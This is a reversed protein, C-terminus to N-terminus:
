LASQQVYEERDKVNKREKVEDNALYLKLGNDLDEKVIVTKDEPKSCFVRRSHLSKLRQLYHKLIEGM